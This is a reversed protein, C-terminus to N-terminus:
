TAASSSWTKGCLTRLPPVAVPSLGCCGQSTLHDSRYLSGLQVNGPAYANILRGAVAAAVREWRAPNVTVPAALLLVDQVLGCGAGHPLAALIELCHWVVQATGSSSHLCRARRTRCPIRLSPTRSCSSM